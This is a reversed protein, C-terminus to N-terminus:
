FVHTNFCHLCRLCLCRLGFLQSAGSEDAIFIELEKGRGRIRSNSNSLDSSSCCANHGFHQDPKTAADVSCCLLTRLLVLDQSCKLPRDYTRSDNRDISQSARWANRQQVPKRFNQLFKLRSGKRRVEADRDIREIASAHTFRQQGFPQELSNPDM